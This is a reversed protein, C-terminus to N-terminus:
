LRSFSFLRGRRPQIRNFQDCIADAILRHGNENPHIGDDCLLTRYDQHALFASTIDIVPVNLALGLKFVQLNYMEHWNTIRELSAGLWGRVNEKQAHDMSRTIHEFYRESDLPTLSLMVPKSGLGSVEDIMDKYTLSFTMLDTKPKHVGDPMDAIANWDFDCDNGGYELITYDSQSIQELHRQMIDKGTSVTSGFKGYNPIEMGLRKECQTTFNNDLFKYRLSGKSSREKDIIVGKLVSDGFAIAKKMDNESKTRHM